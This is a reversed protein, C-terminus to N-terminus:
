THGQFGTAGAGRFARLSNKWRWTLPRVARGSACGYAFLIEISGCGFLEVNYQRHQAGNLPESVTTNDFEGCSLAHQNTTYSPPPVAQVEVWCTGLVSLSVISMTVDGLEMSSSNLGTWHVTQPANSELRRRARFLSACEVKRHLQPKECYEGDGPETIKVLRSFRSLKFNHLGMMDVVTEVYRSHAQVCLGDHTVRWISVVKESACGEGVQPSIQMVIEKVVYTQPTRKSERPLAGCIHLVSASHFGRSFRVSLFVCFSKFLPSTEVQARTVGDM